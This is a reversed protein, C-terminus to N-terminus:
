IRTLYGSIAVDVAGDVGACWGPTCREKVKGGLSLLGELDGAVGFDGSSSAISVSNAWWRPFITEKLGGSAVKLDRDVESALGDSCTSGTPM